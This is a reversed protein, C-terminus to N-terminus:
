SIFIHSLSSSGSPRVQEQGARYVRDIEVQGAHSSAPLAVLSLRFFDHGTRSFKISERFMLVYETIHSVQSGARHKRQVNSCVKHYSEGPIGCTLRTHMGPSCRFWGFVSRSRQQPSTWAWSMASRGCRWCRASPTLSAHLTTHPVCGSTM